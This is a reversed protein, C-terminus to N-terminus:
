SEVMWTKSDYQQATKEPQKLFEELRSIQEKTLSKAEYSSQFIDRIDKPQLYVVHQPAGRNLRKMAFSVKTLYGRRVRMGDTWQIPRKKLWISEGLNSLDFAQEVPVENKLAEIGAVLAEDPHFWEGHSHRASFCQHLKRELERSGPISVLLELPFPSWTNITALRVDPWQSCGIKIPGLQGVPKIFYVFCSNRWSPLVTM